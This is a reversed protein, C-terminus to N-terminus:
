QNEILSSLEKLRFTTSNIECDLHAFGSALGLAGYTLSGMLENCQTDRYNLWAKQSKELLLKNNDDYQLYIRDYLKNMKAKDTKLQQQMCQYAQRQDQQNCQAYATNFLSVFLLALFSYKIKKIM